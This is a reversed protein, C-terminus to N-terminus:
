AANKLEALHEEVAKAEARLEGLYEELRSITEERTMFRRHFHHHQHHRFNGHHCCDGQGHHGFYRNHEFM